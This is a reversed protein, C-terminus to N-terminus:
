FTSRKIDITNDNLTTAEGIDSLREHNLANVQLRQGTIASSYVGSAAATKRAIQDTFLAKFEVEALDNWAIIRDGDKIGLEAGDEPHLMLSAPGRSEILDERELFISNLTHSDPVSILHYPYTGGYCPMYHPVPEKQTENVIMFKGSPTKFDCHDAFDASVTGGEKLIEWQEKTLRALDKGPHSLLDELADEATQKFYDEKLELKGALFCFTDWNSKCQGPPDIIKNSVAFTGYGYAKYCDTQEVSFAAPLIIDAYLATDTMFREHVVTFLDDREIGKLIGTQDCVSNVPNGAYVYLARIKEKGEANLASSLQNINVIRAPSKRFDPRTIRKTDVFDGLNHDCGCIGGGPHKWAGTFASLITILRVTMGGNGYRSLGSGLVIAPAKARGYAAALEEIMAAPIETIEQAWQPTSKKIEPLFQEYGESQNRLFDEDELHERWLVHMMALALAGDTGPRIYVAQDCYSASDRGCAEILIVKKGEKRKRALLPLIQLRTAKINSGWILFFDSDELERPDLCGTKGAVASYGAGKASACLTMVLSCAGLRNFFAEGCKRQIVGMVGSYVVPLIAQPGDERIIKLFREAIEDGAEEWTVPMFQGSGKKGTRRLPTLIRKESNVSTEYNQMKRCILGQNAPHTKDGRVSLIEKGDTEALLGCSTPCDYPCITKQIYTM